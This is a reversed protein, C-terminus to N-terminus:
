CARICPTTSSSSVSKTSLASGLQQEVQAFGENMETEIEDLRALIEECLEQTKAVAAESADMFIWKAIFSSTNEIQEVGTAEGLTETVECAVRMGIDYLKDYLKDTLFGASVSFLSVSFVSVTICLVLVVSILSKSVKKFM